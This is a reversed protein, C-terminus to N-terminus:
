QLKLSLSSVKQQQEIKKLFGSVFSCQHANLQINKDQAFYDISKGALLPEKGPTRSDISLNSAYFGPLLFTM